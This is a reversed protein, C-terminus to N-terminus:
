FNAVARASHEEKSDTARLCFIRSSLLQSRTAITSEQQKLGRNCNYTISQWKKSIKSALVRYNTKLFLFLSEQQRWQLDSKALAALVNYMCLKVPTNSVAILAVFACYASGSIMSRNSQRSSSTHNM